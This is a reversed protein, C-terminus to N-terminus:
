FMSLMLDRQTIALELTKYVKRYTLKNRRISVCYRNFKKDFFINKEKLKNDKRLKCNLKNEESTVWRLNCIRFDLINRNIHDVEPKEEPNPIYHIAVLRHVYRLHNKNNKYLQVQPYGNRDLKQKKYKNLKCGWVRGDNYIKYLGEFGRIDM